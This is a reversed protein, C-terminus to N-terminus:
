GRNVLCYIAADEYAGNYYYSETFYGERVFGHKELLGASGTNDPHIKAEFSHLQMVNFGYDVAAQLAESVLGQRWHDPHLMYGIEARHNDQNINFIGMTGIMADNDHLSLGWTIYQNTASAVNHSIILEKIDEASTALPRSIYQMARKDSRLTYFDNTDNLNIERLLLRRTQLTPFPNFNLELM